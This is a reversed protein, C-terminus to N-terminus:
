ETSQNESPEPQSEEPEYEPAQQQSEETATSNPQDEPPRSAEFEAPPQLRDVIELDLLDFLDNAPGTVLLVRNSHTEDITLDRSEIKETATDIVEGYMEDELQRIQETPDQSTSENNSSLNQSTSENNSSQTQIDDVAQRFSKLREESLALFVTAQRESGTGLGMCGAAAVGVGVSAVSLFDRRCCGREDKM